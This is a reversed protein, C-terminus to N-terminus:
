KLEMNIYKSVDFNDCELIDTRAIVQNIEPIVVVGNIRNALASASDIESPKLYIVDFPKNCDIKVIKNYNINCAVVLGMVGILIAIIWVLKM